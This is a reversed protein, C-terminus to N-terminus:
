PLTQLQSTRKRERTVANDNSSRRRLSREDSEDPKEIKDPRQHNGNQQPPTDNAIIM